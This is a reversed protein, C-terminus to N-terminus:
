WLPTSVTLMGTASLALGRRMWTEAGASWVTISADGCCVSTVPPSAPQGSDPLPRRSSAPHLQGFPLPSFEGFEFVRQELLVRGEGSLEARPLRHQRRCRPPTDATDQAPKPPSPGLPRESPSTRWTIPRASRAEALWTSSPDFLQTRSVPARWCAREDAITARLWATRPTGLIPALRPHGPRTLQRCRARQHGLRRRFGRQDIHPQVPPGAGDFDLTWAARRGPSVSLRSPQRAPPRGDHEPNSPRRRHPHRPSNATNAKSCNPPTSCRTPDRPARRRHRDHRAARAIGRTGLTRGRRWRYTGRWPRAHREARQTVPTAINWSRPCPTRPPLSATTDPRLYRWCPPGDQAARRRRRVVHWPGAARWTSVTGHSALRWPPRVMILQKRARWGRGCPAVDGSSTSLTTKAAAM